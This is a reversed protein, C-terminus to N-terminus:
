WIMFCRMNLDPLVNEGFCIMKEKKSGRELIEVETVYGTKNYVYRKAKNYYWNQLCVSHPYNLARYLQTICARPMATILIDLQKRPYNVIEFIKKFNEKRWMESEIPEIPLTSFEEMEKKVEKLFEDNKPAHLIYVKRYSGVLKKIAKLGYKVRQREGKDAYIVLDEGIKRVLSRIKGLPRGSPTDFKLEDAEKLIFNVIEEWGEEKMRQKLREFVSWSPKSLELWRKKGPIIWGKDTLFSKARRIESDSFKLKKLIYGVKMTSLSGTHKELIGGVLLYILTSPNQLNIYFEEVCKRIKLRVDSENDM